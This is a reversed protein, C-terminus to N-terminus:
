QWETSQGISKHTSFNETLATQNNRKSLINKIQKRTATHAHRLIHVYVVIIYNKTKNILIIKLSNDNVYSKTIIVNTQQALLM